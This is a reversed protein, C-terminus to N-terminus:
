SVKIFEGKTVAKGIWRNLDSGKMESEFTTTGLDSSLELSGINFTSGDENFEVTAIPFQYVGDSLEVTYYLNGSVYHSLKAMTKSKYLDKKIENLEM